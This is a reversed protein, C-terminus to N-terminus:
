FISSKADESPLPCLPSPIDTMLQSILFYAVKDSGLLLGKCGFPFVSDWSNFERLVEDQLVTDQKFNKENTM